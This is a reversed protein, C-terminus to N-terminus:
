RRKQANFSRQNEEILKISTKLLEMDKSIQEKDVTSLSPDRLATQADEGLERMTDRTFTLLLRRTFERELKRDRERDRVHIASSICGQEGLCQKIAVILEPDRQPLVAGVCVEKKVVVEKPWPCSDRKLNRAEAASLGFLLASLVLAGFRYRM